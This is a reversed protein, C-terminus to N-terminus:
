VNKATICGTFNIDSWAFFPRCQARLFEVIYNRDVRVDLSMDANSRVIMGDRNITNFGMNCRFASPDGVPFMLLKDADIYPKTNGALDRYSVSPTYSFVNIFAATGVPKIGGQNRLGDVGETSPAFNALNMWQSSRANAMLEADEAMKAVWQKGMMIVLNNVDAGSDTLVGYLKSVAGSFSAGQGNFDYDFANAAARKFNYEDEIEGSSNRGIFKGSAILELAMRNKTSDITHMMTRVMRMMMATVHTDYSASRAVGPAELYYLFEDLAMQMGVRSPTFDIEKTITPAAVPATENDGYSVASGVFERQIFDATIRKEMGVINRRYLYKYLPMGFQQAYYDYAEGILAKIEPTEM